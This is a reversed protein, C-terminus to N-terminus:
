TRSSRAIEVIAKAARGASHGDLPGLYDRAYKRGADTLSKRLDANQLVTSIAEPLKKATDVMLVADTHAYPAHPKDLSLHLVIVPRNLQMAELATTSFVTILLSCAKILPDILGRSVIKINTAGAAVVAARYSRSSEAPHLKFLFEVSPLKHAAALLAEISLRHQASDFYGYPKQWAVLVIQGAAPVIDTERTTNGTLGEYRIAGTAHVKQPSCGRKLWFTRAAPGWVLLKDTSLRDYIPREAFLGHQLALTPIRLAASVFAMTRGPLSIENALVVVSPRSSELLEVYIDSLTRVRSCVDHFLRHLDGRVSIGSVHQLIRAPEEMDLTSLKRTIETAHFRQRRFSMRRLASPIYVYELGKLQRAEALKHNWSALLVSWGWSGILAEAVPMLTSLNPFSEVMLARQRGPAEGPMYSPYLTRFYYTLRDIIDRFYEAEVLAGLRGLVKRRHAVLSCNLKGRENLPTQCVQLLGYYLPWRGADFVSTARYTLLSKWTPIATLSTALQEFGRSFDEEFYGSM